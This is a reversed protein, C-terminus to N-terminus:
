DQLSDRYQCNKREFKLSIESLSGTSKLSDIFIILSVKESPLNLGFLPLRSMPLLKPFNQDVTMRINTTWCWKESNENQLDRTFGWSLMRDREQPCLNATPSTTSGQSDSTEQHAGNLSCKLADHRSSFKHQTDTQHWQHRASPQHPHLTNGKLLWFLMHNSKM